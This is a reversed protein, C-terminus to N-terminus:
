FDVISFFFFCLLTASFNMYFKFDNKYGHLNNEYKSKIRNKSGSSGMYWIHGYMSFIVKGV